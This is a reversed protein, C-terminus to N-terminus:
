NIKLPQGFVSPPQIYLPKVKAWNFDENVNESNQLKKTTIEMLYTNLPYNQTEYNIISIDKLQLKEKMSNDCIFINSTNLIPMLEKSYIRYQKQVLELTLGNEGDKKIKQESINKARYDGVAAAMFITDFDTIKVANFMDEASEVTVVKYAKQTPKTTILTVDAGNSLLILM